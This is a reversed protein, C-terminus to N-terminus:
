NGLRNSTARKVANMETKVADLSSQVEVRISSIQARSEKQTSEATIKGERANLLADSTKDQLKIMSEQQTNLREKLNENAQELTKVKGKLEDFGDVIDTFQSLADKAKNLETIAQYGGIFVAPLFTTLIGVLITNKKIWDVYTNAKEQLGDLKDLDSM